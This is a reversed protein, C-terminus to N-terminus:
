ISKYFHSGTKPLWKEKLYEFLLISSYLMTFCYFSDELPMTGVRIGLNEADNYFVVPLKSYSGTLAGNVFFFPIYIMMFSLYFRQAYKWKFIVQLLMLVAFLGFSCLTYIKDYNIASIVIANGFLFASFLQAQKASLKFKPFFHELSYHIFNSSYPILLFFLWEEVPLKFIRIGVLYDDNFGWVQSYAFYIDWIIFFIGTMSIATFYPKWFRIFHMWRREFSFCFPIAFSGLELFLYYFKEM